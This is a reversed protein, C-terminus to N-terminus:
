GNTAPITAPCGTSTSWVLSIGYKRWFYLGFFYIKRPWGSFLSTSVQERSPVCRGSGATRMSWTLDLGRAQRCTDGSSRAVSEGNLSLLCVVDTPSTSRRSKRRSICPTPLATSTGNPGMGTNRSARDRAESRWDSPRERPVSDSENGPEDQVEAVDRSVLKCTAHSPGM